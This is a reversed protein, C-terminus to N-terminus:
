LQVFQVSVNYIKAIQHRLDQINQIILESEDFNLYLSNVGDSQLSITIILNNNSALPTNRESYEKWRGCGGRLINREDEVDEERFIGQM